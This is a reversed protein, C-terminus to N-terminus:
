SQESGGKRWMRDRNPDKTAAKRGTGRHPDRQMPLVRVGRGSEAVAERQHLVSPPTLPPQSLFVAASGSTYLYGGAGAVGALSSTSGQSFGVQRLQSNSGM